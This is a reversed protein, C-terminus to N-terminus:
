RVRDRHALGANQQKQIYARERERYIYIYTYVYIYLSLSIHMCIYVCLDLCATALIAGFLSLLGGAHFLDGDAHEASAGEALLLIM